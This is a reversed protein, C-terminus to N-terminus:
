QQALKPLGNGAVPAEEPFRLDISSSGDSLAEPRSLWQRLRALKCAVTPEGFRTTNPPRGWAIRARRRTFLLIESRQPDIEGDLNSADIFHIQRLLAPEAALAEVVATAALTGRDKWRKGPQPPETKVGFVLPLPRAEHDWRQYDLPLRICQGDIAYCADPLRVFVAPERLELEVHLQNPFRKEVRRVSKVWPSARYAEAVDSVLDSDFISYSERPFAVRELDDACWPPGQARFHAPCVRFGPMQEAERRAVLLGLIAAGALAVLLGVQLGRSFLGTRVREKLRSFFGQGGERMKKNRGSM